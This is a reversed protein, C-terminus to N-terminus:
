QDSDPAGISYGFLPRLLRCDLERATAEREPHWMVGILPADSALFAEVYGDNTVALPALGEALSASEIASTHFSNVSTEANDTDPVNLEKAFTVTHRTAVHDDPNCPSLEGGFETQILQVGRCVGFVPLGREVFHALLVRETEDRLPTQGIDDGGTLILAELEWTEVFKLVSSGTNPIATWATDPLADSMFDAWNQALSDRQEEYGTASTIRTTLGVRRVPRM